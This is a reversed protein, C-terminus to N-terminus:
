SRPVGLAPQFNGSVFRNLGTSKRAPEAVADANPTKTSSLPRCLANKQDSGTLSAPGPAGFRQAVRRPSKAAAVGLASPSEGHLVADDYDSTPEPTELYDAAEAARRDRDRQDVPLVVREELWEGVLDRGSAERRGLDRARQSRDDLALGVGPDHEGLHVLDVQVAAPEEEVAERIACFPGLQCVVGEHDGGADLVRVEAMGLPLRVRGLQLREVPCQLDAGPDERGELRRFDLLVGLPTLTPEREDDDAAARRADLHCTLDGLERAFGHPAVEARRIRAARTSSTSAPSRM